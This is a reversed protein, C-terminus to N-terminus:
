AKKPVKKAFGDSGAPTPPRPSVESDSRKTAADEVVEGSTASPPGGDCGEGSARRLPYGPYWGVKM